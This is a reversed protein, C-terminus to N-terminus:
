QLKRLKNTAEHLIKKIDKENKNINDTQSLKIMCTTLEQMEHSMSKFPLFNTRLCQHFNRIFDMDKKDCLIELNKLSDMTLNFMQEKANYIEKLTSKGKQTVSYVKKRGDTKLQVLQKNHMDKLLPYISGYSPKWHGTSKHIEKVIDYGSKSEKELIKLVIIKLHSKIM